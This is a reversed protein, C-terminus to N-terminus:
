TVRMSLPIEVFECNNNKCKEMVDHLDIRHHSLLLENLDAVSYHVDRGGRNHNENQVRNISVNVVPNKDFCMLLNRHWNRKNSMMAMELSNPLMFHSNLLLMKFFSTSYIMGGAQYPYGWTTHPNELTWNWMALNPFSPVDIFSPPGVVAGTHYSLTINKGHRLSLGIVDDTILHAFNIGISRTIVDDDCLPLVFPTQVVNAVTNRLVDAFTKKTQHIFVVNPYRREVVSYGLSFQKSSHDHLVYVTGVNSFNEYISQLLLDLQMARDKSYIIIDIKM